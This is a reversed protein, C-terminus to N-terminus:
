RGEAAERARVLPIVEALADDGRGGLAVVHTFGYRDRRRVLADAMEQPTGMLLYPNEWLPEHDPVVGPWVLKVLAAASKEVDDTVEVHQLLVSLEIDRGAARERVLAVREDTEEAGGVRFVGMRAGKRQTLGAVGVIDAREAALALTAAGHGGILLPPRDEGLRADLGDVAAALDALREAHARWPIGADEFEWKMHGAGLGLEFRGGSLRDLTVAERALLATNWFENNLVYTGLRLRETAAAAAGLLTFPGGTDLHDPALLLDYGREEVTRCTDTWTRATDADIINVGFRMRRM